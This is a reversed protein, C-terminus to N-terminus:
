LIPDTVINDYLGDRQMKVVSDLVQPGQRDAYVQLLNMSGACITPTHTAFEVFSNVKREAKDVM